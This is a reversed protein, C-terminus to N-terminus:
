GGAVGWLRGKGSGWASTGVRRVGFEPNVSYYDRVAYPSGLSGKRNKEGIEHIPMLWLIRVGLAALRPLQSQAAAFTGAPTFQRVNLEYIAADRTWAPHEVQIYPQPVLSEDSPASACAALWCGVIVLGMRGLRRM